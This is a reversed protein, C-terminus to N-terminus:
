QKRGKPMQQYRGDGKRRQMHRQEVAERREWRGEGKGVGARSQRQEGQRVEGVNRRGTETLEKKIRERRKRAM